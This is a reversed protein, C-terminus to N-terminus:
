VDPARHKTKHKRSVEIPKNLPIGDKTSSIYEVEEEEYDYGVARQFAKVVLETDAIGKGAEWAQQIDPFKKSIRQFWSKPDKGCYGLIIGIDAQTLGMASINKIIPILSTDLKALEKTKTKVM